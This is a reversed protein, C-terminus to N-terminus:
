SFKRLCAPSLHRRRMEFFAVVPLALGDLVTDAQRIPLDAARQQDNGAGAAALGVRQRVADRMQDDIAGIRAADQQHGKRPPRRGLRRTTHLADAPLHKTVVCGDHGVREGPGAGEMADAGPEQAHIGLLDTETDIEGDMIALVAGVQHVEDPMVKTKGGLLAPEGCLAGADGDIGADDIRLDRDLLDQFGGIGPHEFPLLLQLLKEGGLNFRLLRLVHEIVVVQQEVPRLHNGLRLQGLVDAVAEVVDQDIFILIGIAQLRRDEHRQRGAAAAQGDNAIVRLRDVGEASRGDAVDQIERLFERGLRGVDDREVWGIRAAAFPTM